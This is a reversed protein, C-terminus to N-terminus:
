AADGQRQANWRRWRANEYERNEAYYARRIRRNVEAGAETARYRRAKMRRRCTGSCFRRRGDGVFRTSCDDADCERYQDEIQDDIMEPWVEFPHLGAACAWRDAQDATLGLDRARRYYTGNVSPMHLRIFGNLTLGTAALLPEIPYYRTM